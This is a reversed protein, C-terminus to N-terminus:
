PQSALSARRQPGIWRGIWYTVADGMVAGLISWFMVTFPDLFGKQILGGAFLMIATAPFFLGVLVLSEGFAIFALIPGAVDRHLLLFAEISDKM